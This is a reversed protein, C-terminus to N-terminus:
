RHPAPAAIVELVMQAGAASACVLLALAVVAKAMHQMKM